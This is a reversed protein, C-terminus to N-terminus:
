RIIVKDGENLGSKIEVETDSELGTEVKVKDGGEREVEGDVVAELPLTLVGSAKGLVIDADGNMGLRFTRDISMTIKVPFVTAGTSSLESVFGIEAIEGTMVDNEFADLKIKVEQGAYVQGVDSEDIEAEFYMSTPDVVTVGDAVGVTDGVAKTTIGTTIGAFPAKLISNDVARRATLWVEYASDRATQAAVRSNKQDFTEDKDHGKVEDEVVKANADAALYAYWGRTETAKLDGTDLGMLWTGRAVEQAESARVFALKGAAPFNLVAMKDAAVKGSVSLAETIDGREVQVVRIEAEAKKKAANSRWWGVGGVVLVIVAIIINRRTLFRRM